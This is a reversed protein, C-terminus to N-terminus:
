PTLQRRYDRPSMGTALKFATSFHSQSSFGSALGIDGLSRAPDGLLQKARAIRLCALVESTSQGLADVFRRQLTRRSMTLQEALADWPFPSEALHEDLYAVVVDAISGLGIRLRLDDDPGATHPRYARWLWGALFHELAHDTADPTRRAFRLEGWALALGQAVAGASGVICREAIAPADEAYGHAMVADPIFLSLVECDDSVYRIAHPTRPFVCIWHNTSLEHDRDDVCVVVRGPRMPVIWNFEEHYHPQFVGRPWTDVTLFTDDDTEIEVLGAPPDRHWPTAM